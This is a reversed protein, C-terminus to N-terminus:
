YRQREHMETRFRSLDQVEARCTECEALHARQEPTASGESCRAVGAYDLHESLETRLARISNSANHEAYARGRCEPCESLHEDVALLEAPPLTRNRYRAFQEDTLHAPATM